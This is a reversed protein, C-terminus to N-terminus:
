AAAARHLGPRRGVSIVLPWPRAAVQEWAERALGADAFWSALREITISSEGPGLSAGDEGTLFEVVLLRGGPRLVRAAERLVTAPQEAQYLVQDITVTDFSGDAFRLQYMNGQRVALHDLGAAHLNSRALVLMERSIDIGMATEAGVGLLRLMRGTGTGIDLLEGLAEGNMLEVIRADVGAPAPVAEGAALARVQDARRALIQELRVQDLRLMEDDRPLLRLVGRALEAGPGRLPVRYYVWNQERFRDLLGSSCLVKLHRSVRPQSQGVVETIETVSLEGRACLALLRLRTPEAAAKLAELLREM